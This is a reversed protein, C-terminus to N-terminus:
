LLSQDIGYKCRIDVARVFYVVSVVVVISVTAGSAPNCAAYSYSVLHGRPLYSETQGM